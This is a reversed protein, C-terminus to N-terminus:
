IYKILRAPYFSIPFVVIFINKLQLSSQLSISEEELKLQNNNQNELRVTLTMDGMKIGNLAACAIYTVSLDQYVCLAYGKSQATEGDRIVEFRHLPGFTELLERIQTETFYYPFGGVFIHDAPGELDDASGPTLGVAAMNLKSNSQSPGLTAALSPNYDSPRSVRM